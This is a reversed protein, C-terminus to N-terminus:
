NRYKSNEFEYLIRTMRRLFLNPRELPLPDYSIPPLQDDSLAAALATTLTQRHPAPLWSVIPDPDVDYFTVREGDHICTMVGWQLGLTAAAEEVADAQPIYPVIQMRELSEHPAHDAPAFQRMALLPRGNLIWIRLLEGPKVEALLIPTKGPDALALMQKQMFLQWAGRGTAPRWVVQFDQRCFAEADQLTNVCVMDPVALGKRALLSLQSHKMFDLLYLQPGHWVEVGRRVLETLLSFTASFKQQEALYGFQWISWDTGEEPTPIVPNTYHFGHVWVKELTSLEEGQWSLSHADISLRGHPDSLDMAVVQGPVRKEVEALVQRAFPQGFHLIGVKM